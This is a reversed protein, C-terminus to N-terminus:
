ANEGTASSAADTTTKADELARERISKIAYKRQGMPIHFATNKQIITGVPCIEAAKAVQDHTMKNALTIDIEIRAHAGRGHISFIKKGSEQDRIFEVCRQCFICRDRELLIADAGYERERPTYRYDFRSVMMGVEYGVAQLDCHGSKECSPCNHTGESFLTEVLAKRMDAIDPSSVDVVM